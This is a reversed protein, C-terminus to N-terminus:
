GGVWGCVKLTPCSAHLSKRDGVSGLVDMDFFLLADGKHPLVAMGSGKSACETLNDLLQLAPDIPTALPLATEGGEEVDSTAPCAFHQHPHSAFAM